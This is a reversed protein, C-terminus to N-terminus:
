GAAEDGEVRCVGGGGRPQARNGAARQLEMAAHVGHAPEASVGSGVLAACSSFEEPVSRLAYDAGDSGAFLLTQFRFVARQFVPERRDGALIPRLLSRLGRSGRDKAPGAAM